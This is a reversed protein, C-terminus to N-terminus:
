ILLSVFKLFLVCFLLHESFLIYPTNWVSIPVLWILVIVGHVVRGIAVCLGYSMNLERNPCTEIIIKKLIKIEKSYLSRILPLLLLRFWEVIVDTCWYWPFWRTPWWCISSTLSTLITLLRCVGAGKILLVLLFGTELNRVLIITDFWLNRRRKRLRRLILGILPLGLDLNRSILLFIRLLCGRWRKLSLLELRWLLLLPWRLLLLALHRELLYSLLIALVQLVVVSLWIALVLPVILVLTLLLIILWFPFYTKIVRMEIMRVITYKVIFTGGLEESKWTSM